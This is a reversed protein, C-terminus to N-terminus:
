RSWHTGIPREPPPFVNRRPNLRTMWRPPEDWREEASAGQKSWKSGPGAKAPALETPAPPVSVEASVPSGFLKALTATDARNLETLLATVLDPEERVSSRPNGPDARDAAARAHSAVAGARGTTGPRARREL